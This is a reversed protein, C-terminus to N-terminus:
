RNSSSADIKARAIYQKGPRTSYRVVPLLGSAGAAPFTLSLIACCVVRESNELRKRGLIGTLKLVTLKLVTLQRRELSMDLLPESGIARGFFYVELLKMMGTFKARRIRAHSSETHRDSALWKLVQPVM